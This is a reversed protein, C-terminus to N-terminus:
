TYFEEKYTQLNLLKVSSGFAVKDHTFSSPDIIQSKEIM